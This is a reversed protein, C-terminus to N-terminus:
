GGFACFVAISYRMQCVECFWAFGHLYAGFFQRHQLFCRIHKPIM